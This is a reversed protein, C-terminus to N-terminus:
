VQFAVKGVSSAGALVLVWEDKPAPLNKPDPLPTNLGRFIGLCATKLLNIM